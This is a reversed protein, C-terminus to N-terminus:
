GRKRRRTSRCGGRERDRVGEAGGVAGGGGGETSPRRREDVKGSKIPRDIAPYRIRGALEYTVLSFRCSCTTGDFTISEREATSRIQLHITGGMTDLEELITRSDQSSRRRNSESAPDSDLNYPVSVLTSSM